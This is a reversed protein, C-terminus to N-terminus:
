PYRYQVARQHCQCPNNADVGSPENQAAAGHLAAGAPQGRGSSLSVDASPADGSALTVVGGNLQTTRELRERHIMPLGPTGACLRSSVQPAPLLVDGRLPAVM